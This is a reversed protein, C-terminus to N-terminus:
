LQHSDPHFMACVSAELSPSDKDPDTCWLPEGKWPKLTYSANQAGPDPTCVSIGDSNKWKENGKTEGLVCTRAAETTCLLQAPTCM